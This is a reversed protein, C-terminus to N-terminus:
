KITINNGTQTDSHHQSWLCLESVSSRKRKREKRKQPNHIISTSRRIDPLSRSHIWRAGSRTKKLSPPNKNSNWDRCKNQTQKHRRRSKIKIAQSLRSICGNRKSKGAYHFVPNRMKLIGKNYEPSRWYRSIKWQNSQRRNIQPRKEKKTSLQALPRDIKNM